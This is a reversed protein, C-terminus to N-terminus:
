IRYCQWELRQPRLQGHLPACPEPMPVFCSAVEFFEGSALEYQRLMWLYVLVFCKKESQSEMGTKLATKYM